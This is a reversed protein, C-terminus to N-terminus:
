PADEGCLARWTDLISERQAGAWSLDYALPLIEPMDGAGVDARVSRRSIESALHRQTEPLLLFDIFRRANEEHACGKVVAAGDPLVLTGEEPNVIAVDMGEAIANRADEELTVGIYCRGDAVAAIVDGSDPLTEYGLNRAFAAFAQETGGSLQALACLATYASGSACPNAFAIRGRWGSDFLDAWGHPLNQRVLKTNYVLVISLASFPTWAGGGLDYEPAIAAANESEYPAFCDSCATLSDAGGGFMVDCGSDGAAIRNLMTVSGGSEMEVWIGTRQEFEEIIPAYINEKHSTFIVLRDEEAPAFSSADQTRTGACGACLALVFGLTALLVCIRRM